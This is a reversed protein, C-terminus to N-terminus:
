PQTKNPDKKQTNKKSMRKHATKDGSVRGSEKYGDFVQMPRLKTDIKKKPVKPYNEKTNSFPETGASYTCECKQKGGSLEFKCDHM